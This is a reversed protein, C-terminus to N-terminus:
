IRQVESVLIFIEEQSFKEELERQIRVLQEGIMQERWTIDIVTFFSIYNGRELRGTEDRVGLGEVPAKPTTAGGEKVAIREIESKIYRINMGEGDRIKEPLLFEVKVTKRLPSGPIQIIM